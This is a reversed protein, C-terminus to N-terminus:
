TCQINCRVSAAAAEHKPELMEFENADLEKKPKILVHPSVSLTRPTPAHLHTHTRTNTRALAHSHTRTPACSQTHLKM